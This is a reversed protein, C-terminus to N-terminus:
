RVYVTGVGRLTKEFLSFKVFNQLVPGRIKIEDAVIGAKHSRAAPLVCWTAGEKCPPLSKKEKRLIWV